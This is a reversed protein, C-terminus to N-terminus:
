WPQDKERYSRIDTINDPDCYKVTWNSPIGGNNLNDRKYEAPNWEINKNLIITGEEAVGTLWNDFNNNSGYEGTNPNTTYKNIPTDTFLAIVEKLKECGDFTNRLCSAPVTTSKPIIANTLSTCGKFTNWYLRGALGNNFKPFKTLSTCGYFMGEFIGSSNSNIDISSLDIDGDLSKCGYFM